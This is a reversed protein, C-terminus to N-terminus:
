TLPKITMVDSFGVDDFIGMIHENVGIIEMHGQKMMHKQAVLVLRLGMSSIYTLGKLDLVLHTTGEYCEELVTQAETVTTTDLRGSIEITLDCGNQHKIIEM